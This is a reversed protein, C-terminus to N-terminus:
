AFAAEDQVPVSPAGALEDAGTAPPAEAQVPAQDEVALASEVPPTPEASAPATEVPTAPAENPSLQKNVPDYVIGAAADKAQKGGGAGFVDLKRNKFLQEKARSLRGSLSTDRKLPDTIRRGVLTLGSIAFVKTRDIAGDRPQVHIVNGLVGNLFTTADAPLHANGEGGGFAFVESDGAFGM